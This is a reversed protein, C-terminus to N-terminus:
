RKGRHRRGSAIVLSGLIALVGPEPVALAHMATTGSGSTAGFRSKWFDYDEGTVSGPTIGGENPLQFSQGLHKRWIVYDAVDVAGDINYDGAVGSSITKENFVSLIFPDAHLAQNTFNHEYVRMDDIYGDFLQDIVNRQNRAGIAMVNEWPQVLSFGEVLQGLQVTTSVPLGDIYIRSFISGFSDTAWVVGIHHWNGDAWDSPFTGGVQHRFSRTDNDTSRLLMNVSGSANSRLNLATFPATGAAPGDTVGLWNKDGVNVNANLKKVWFTVAGNFFGATNNPFAGTSADVWDNIGDFFISGNPTGDVGLGFTPTSAPATLANTGERFVGNPASSVSNVLNGDFEFRSLLTATQGRTAVNGFIGCILVGALLILTMHYSSNKM